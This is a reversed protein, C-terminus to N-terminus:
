FKYNIITRINKVEVNENNLPLETAKQFIYQLRIVINNFNKGIGTAYTKNFEMAHHQIKFGDNMIAFVRKGFYAAAGFHWTSYHTHLKVASTFYHEKANKTFSNSKEEDIKIYLNESSLKVDIDGIHTKFDINFNTQYVNFDEYDTYFQTVNLTLQKKYFYSIGAGYAIGGDTIAINDHLIRLYNGNFAFSKNPAYAYRLFLKEVQLDNQLPPQKTQTDAYEYVFRIESSKIHVDGGVGYVMGNTKQKSNDFDKSEFYLQTSSHIPQFEVGYLNLVM